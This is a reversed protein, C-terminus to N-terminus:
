PLIVCMREVSQVLLRLVLVYYISKRFGSFSVEQDLRLLVGTHNIKDFVISTGLGFGNYGSLIDIVREM